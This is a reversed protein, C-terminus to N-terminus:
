RLSLLNQILDNSPRVGNKRLNEYDKAYEIRYFRTLESEQESFLSCVFNFLGDTMKKM